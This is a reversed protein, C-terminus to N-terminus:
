TRTVKSLGAPQDPDLGRAMALWWAVQQARVATPITALPEPPGPPTPLHAGPVPGVLFTRAGRGALLTVLDQIDGLSPGPHALVLVPFSQEIVAIPGHRLDAASYGEALIGSTEKLKLAAEM